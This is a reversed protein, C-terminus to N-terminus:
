YYLRGAMSVHNGGSIATLSFVYYRKFESGPIPVILAGQATSATPNLGIGLGNPVLDQGNPMLNHNRDWVKDGQTYFLLNGNPDCISAAAEHAYMNSQIEIP